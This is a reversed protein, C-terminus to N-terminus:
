RLNGGRQLQHPRGTPGQPSPVLSGLLLVVPARSRGRNGPLTALDAASGLSPSASPMVSTGCSILWELGCCRLYTKSKTRKCQQNRRLNRDCLVHDEWPVGVSVCPSMAKLLYIFWALMRHQHSDSSLSLVYSSNNNIITINTKILLISLVFSNGMPKPNAASTSVNAPLISHYLNLVRTTAEAECAFSGLIRVFLCSAAPAAAASSLPPSTESVTGLAARCTSVRRCFRCVGHTAHTNNVRRRRCFTSAFCLTM